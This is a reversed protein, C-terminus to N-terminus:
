TKRFRRVGAAVVFGMIAVGLLAVPVNRPSETLSGLVMVFGTLALMVLGATRLMWGFGSPTGVQGAAIESIPTHFPVLDPAERYPTSWTLRHDLKANARKIWLLYFVCGVAWSASSFASRLRLGSLDAATTTSTSGSTAIFLLLGAAWAFATVLRMWLPVVANMPSEVYAEGQEIRRDRPRRASSWAMGGIVIVIVSVRTLSQMLALSDANSRLSAAIASGRVGDVLQRDLDSRRVFLLARVLGIGAAAVCAVQLLKGIPQSPAPVPGLYPITDMNM